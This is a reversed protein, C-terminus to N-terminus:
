PLRLVTGLGQLSEALRLALPLFVMVIFVPFACLMLPLLVQANVVSLRKLGDERRRARANDAQAKLTAEVSGGMTAGVALASKAGLWVM